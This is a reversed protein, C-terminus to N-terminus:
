PREWGATFSRGLVGVPTPALRRFADAVTGIAETKDWEAAVGVGASEWFTCSWVRAKRGPCLLEQLGDSQIGVSVRSATQCRVRGLGRVFILSRILISHGV